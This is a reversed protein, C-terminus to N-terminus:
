GRRAPEEAVTTDWRKRWGNIPYGISDHAGIYIYRNYSLCVPQSMRVKLYSEDSCCSMVQQSMFPKRLKKTSRKMLRFSIDPSSMRFSSSRLFPVFGLGPVM